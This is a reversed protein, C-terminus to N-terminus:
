STPSSDFCASAHTSMVRARSPSLSWPKENQVRSRMPPVGHTSM